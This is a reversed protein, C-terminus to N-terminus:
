RNIRLTGGCWCLGFSFPSFQFPFLTFLASSLPTGISVDAVNFPLLVSSSPLRLSGQNNVFVWPEEQFCFSSHRSKILPSLM